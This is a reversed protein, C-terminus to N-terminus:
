KNRAYLIGSLISVFEIGDTTKSLFTVQHIPFLFSPFNEMLHSKQVKFKINGIQDILLFFFRVMDM